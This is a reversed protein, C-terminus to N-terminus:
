NTGFQKFNEPLEVDLPYCWEFMEVETVTIPFRGHFSPLWVYGLSDEDVYMRKSARAQRIELENLDNTSVIKGGYQALYIFLEKM